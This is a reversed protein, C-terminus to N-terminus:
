GTVLVFVHRCICQIMNEVAILINNCRLVTVLTLGYLTEGSLWDDLENWPAVGSVGLGRAAPWLQAVVDSSCFWGNGPRAVLIELWLSTLFDTLKVASLTWNHPIVIWLAVESCLSADCHIWSGAAPDAAVFLHTRTHAWGGCETDSEETGIKERLVSLM